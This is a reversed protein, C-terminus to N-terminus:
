VALSITSFILRGNDNVRIRGVVFIDYFVVSWLKLFSGVHFFALFGTNFSSSRIM